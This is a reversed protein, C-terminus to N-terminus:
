GHKYVVFDFDLWFVYFINEKTRHGILRAKQGCFRFVSVKEIDQPFDSPLGVELRSVPLMEYGLTTDKRQQTLALWPQLSLHQCEKLVNALKASQSAKLGKSLDFFQFSFGQLLDNQAVVKSSSVKLATPKKPLKV